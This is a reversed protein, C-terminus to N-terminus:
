GYTKGFVTLMKTTVSNARFLESEHDIRTLCLGAPFSCCCTSESTQAVEKEIMVKILSLLTGKAELSRFLLALMEDVDAPPAVECITVAFALNDDM